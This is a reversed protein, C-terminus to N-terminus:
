NWLHYKDLTGRVINNFYAYNQMCGECKEVKNNENCFNTNSYVFCPPKEIEQLKRMFVDHCM